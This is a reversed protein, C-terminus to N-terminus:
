PPASRVGLMKGVFEDITDSDLFPGRFVRGNIIAAPDGNLGYRLSILIGKLSDASVVEIKVKRGYKSLREAVKIMQNLDHLMWWPYEQLQKMSDEIEEPPTFHCCPAITLYVTPYLGYLIVKVRKAM